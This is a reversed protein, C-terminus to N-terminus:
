AHAVFDKYREFDASPMQLQEGKWYKKGDYWFNNATIKVPVVTAKTEATKKPRAM